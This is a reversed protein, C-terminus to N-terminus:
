LIFPVTQQQRQQWVESFRRSRLAQRYHARRGGSVIRDLSYNPGNQVSLGVLAVVAM